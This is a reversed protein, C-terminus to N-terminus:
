ILRAHTQRQWVLRYYASQLGLMAFFAIPYAIWVGDLGIRHSLLYSAPVQILWIAGISLVTPWFVAGSARMVGSIVAVLGYVLYSWLTLRVLDQAIDVVEPSTIFLRLISRSFVYTVLILAGTIAFQLDIGTRTIKALQHSDGRGIAQAGFVSAAIGISIAPQQVYGVIQLVAGYAATAGSGFDNVMRMVAFESLSLMMVQVGTPVGIKLLLWLLKWDIRLSRLLERDPALPHRKLILYAAMWVVTILFSAVTAWAGAAVGLQPLGGWGRILAPTLLLGFANQILLALFPTRADGVGRTITTYIIFIFLLPSSYLFIRTYETADALIDPPTGILLLMGQTYPGGFISILLGMAISVTLTTGAVAKVRGLENAGYAQGILVSAGSGLGIVFSILLILLPIFVSVAGLAHVGLMNGLIISNLTGSLSQLVNSAMMPLLFIVFTKWLPRAGAVSTTSVSPSLM